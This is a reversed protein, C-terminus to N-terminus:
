SSGKPREKLLHELGSELNKLTERDGREVRLLIQGDRSIAIVVPVWEVNWRAVEEAARDFDIPMVKVQNKHKRAFRNLAEEVAHCPGCWSATFFLITLEPADPAKAVDPSAARGVALVVVLALMAVARMILEGNASM